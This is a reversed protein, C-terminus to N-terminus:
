VFFGRGEGSAGFITVAISAVVVLNCVFLILVSVYTVAGLLGVFVVVIVPIGVLSAQRM